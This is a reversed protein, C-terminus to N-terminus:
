ENCRHEQKCIEMKTPQGQEDAINVDNTLHFLLFGSDVTPDLDIIYLLTPKKLDSSSLRSCPLRKAGGKFADAPRLGSYFDLSFDNNQQM